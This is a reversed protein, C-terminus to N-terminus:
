PPATLGEVSGFVAGDDNVCFTTGMPYAGRPPPRGYNDTRDAKPLRLALRGNDLDRYGAFVIADPEDWATADIRYCGPPDTETAPPLAYYWRVGEYTGVLLLHGEGVGGLQLDSEGFEVLTDATVVSTQSGDRMMETVVGTSTPETIATPRDTPFVISAFIRLAVYGLVTPVALAIVVLDINRALKGM